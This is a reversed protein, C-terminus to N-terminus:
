GSSTDMREILGCSPVYDNNMCVNARFIIDTKMENM